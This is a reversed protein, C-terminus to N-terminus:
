QKVVPHHGYEGSPLWGYISGAGSFYRSVLTNRIRKRLSLLNRLEVIVYDPNSRIKSRFQCFLGYRSRTNEDM